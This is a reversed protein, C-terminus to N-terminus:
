AISQALLSGLEFAKSLDAESPVFCAKLGEGIVNLKLTNLRAMLAPVAEGSWGYSGFVAVPRKKINIADVCAILNWVPAVADANLTPSGIAFANSGNLEAALTAIDYDIINYLKCEASPLVSLVGDRIKAALAATCGYASCYFIPIRKPDNRVVKSWEKYCEIAYDLQGAKTLVPGHSNCVYKIDLAAIKALGAAVFPKFPGFIADFYDKLASRYDALDRIKTDFMPEFSYHAGLFDCPFLAKEEPCYTMMSDPWHLMPAVVFRLTAGGLDLQEGDKVARVNLASNNTINKLYNAGVATAVIQANPCLETLAALAGSHDPETHNDIIFDIESPDVVSEINAKYADFFDAHCAEILAIKDDGKVIFSNYSTGFRTPMVIDFIELDPNQVGVSYIRDTIKIASM